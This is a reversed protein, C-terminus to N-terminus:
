TLPLWLRFTSGRSPESVATIEGAHMRALEQCLYLGLGAGPIHSNQGNVIRGFRTFLAAMDESAIGLGQDSVAVVAKDSAVEVRCRITGGAPSYKVANDLLSHVIAILRLEDGRVPVAEGPKQLQLEHSAPALLRAEEYAQTVPARLDLDQLTLHLRGDELRAAELMDNVLLAMHRAKADLVQYAKCRAAPDVELAGEQLMSTYARLTGLPGRLEHSALQLFQSKVAELESLRQAERRASELRDTNGIALDTLAAAAELRQLQWDTFTSGDRAFASIAGFPEEGKYLPMCAIQTAQLRGIMTRLEDTGFIEPKADRVVARRQEMAARLVPHASLPFSCGKLEIALDDTEATVIMRGDDLVNIQARRQASGPPWLLQATINSAEQLVAHPDLTSSLQHAAEHLLRLERLSEEVAPREPTSNNGRRRRPVDTAM